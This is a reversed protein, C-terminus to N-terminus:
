SGHFARGGSSRIEFAAIPRTSQSIASISVSPTARDEDRFKTIAIPLQTAGVGSIEVRFQAWAPLPLISTAALAAASTATAAFQRRNLM